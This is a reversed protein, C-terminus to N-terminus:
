EVYATFTIRQVPNKPDNSYITVAKQQSGSRKQPDFAIKITSSEGPKVSSKSASAKICTCNGQVSRLSLEKKGSNTFQIEKITAASSKVRGFDLNHESIRLQPAKAMEAESLEPFHEELTAYVSFTKVPNTDDDTHLEINDSQFGYENRLKGNYSIRVNGKDGPALIRPTVELKIYKPSVLKESFNIPKTSSNMVPFDRVVYEDKLFVKGMNFAATKFRLGGNVVQFDAEVPKSSETSVQGKIYLIIQNAEFDTTVTLSKNFFGPRGKPNYSAQVTGTKGPEIPEKTWGPTTCGCSPQVNLIKVPRTSNNTFVFEHSVPGNDEAVTGFDFTEEKFHIQKAQQAFGSVLTLLFCLSFITRTIM